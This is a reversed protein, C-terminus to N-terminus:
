AGSGVPRDSPTFRIPLTAPGFIGMPPRWTPEGDLALGPLAGALVPLAEQMEARALGAGLCYHPGGGFTLQPEREVTIDFLDPREYASPDHNASATALVLLTGATLRYGDLDFDEAALRPAFAVAGRYRMVEEVARPALEPNAALLAWQEPHQSFVWMALGLQNRTTDYGAFLLSGLLIQLEEDSLRDDGEEAAVLESVLDGRPAARRAAVLGAVYEDMRKMGWEAEDWHTALDLSLTWALAKNWLTFAEHDETPVGLVHCMVQIPYHEAVADMFDCRGAGVVPALLSELLSRMLPRHRDVATPVFARRVLTRIRTHEAGELALLSGRLGDYLSGRTVGQMEVLEVLSSRLRRDALLLQVQPRGIVMGGIPTRVLWSERRLRGVVPEPDARFEPSLTDLFPADDLTRM